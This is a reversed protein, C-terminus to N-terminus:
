QVSWQVSSCCHGLRGGGGYVHCLSFRGIMFSDDVRGQRPAVATKEAAKEVAPGQVSSSAHELADDENANVFKCSLLRITCRLPFSTRKKRWEM